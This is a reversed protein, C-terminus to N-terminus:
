PVIGSYREKIKKKKMFEVLILIEHSFLNSLELIIKTVMLLLANQSLFLSFYTVCSNQKQMISFPGASLKRFSSIHQKGQGFHQFVLLMPCMHVHGASGELCNFGSRVVCGWRVIDMGALERIISSRSNEGACLKEMDFRSEGKRQKKKKQSRKGCSLFLVYCCELDRLRQWWDVCGLPGLCSKFVRIGVGMVFAPSCFMGISIYLYGLSLLMLFHTHSFKRIIVFGLEFEMKRM